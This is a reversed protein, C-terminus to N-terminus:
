TSGARSGPSTASPVASSAPRSAVVGPPRPWRGRIRRLELWGIGEPLLPDSGLMGDKPALALLVRLLLLPTGTPWAQPSSAAPHEVPSRTLTRPYGAFVEPLRHEFYTAAELIAHALRSAQWMYGYRRLGAALLANDHPWVTGNHSEIPHYGGEGDAMSRVGWGSFLREGLEQGVVAAAKAQDVIGSWLPHGINPTM